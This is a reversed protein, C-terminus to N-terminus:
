TIPYELGNKTSALIYRSETSSPHKTNLKTSLLLPTERATRKPVPLHLKTTPSPQPKSERLASLTQSTKSESLSRLRPPTCLHKFRCPRRPKMTRGSTRSPCPHFPHTRSSHFTAVKRSSDEPPPRLPTVEARGDNPPPCAEDLMTTRSRSDLFNMGPTSSHLFEYLSTKLPDLFALWSETSDQNLVNATPFTCPVFITNWLASAMECHLLLHNMSEGSKKWM